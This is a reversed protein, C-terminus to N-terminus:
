KTESDSSDKREEFTRKHELGMLEVNTLEKGKCEAENSIDPEDKAGKCFSKKM